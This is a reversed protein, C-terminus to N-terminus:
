EICGSIAGRAKLAKVTARPIRRYFGNALVSRSGFLRRREKAFTRRFAAGAKYKQTKLLRKSIAGTDSFSTNECTPNCFMLRCGAENSRQSGGHKATQRKAQGKCYRRCRDM